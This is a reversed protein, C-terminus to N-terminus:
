TVLILLLLHINGTVFEFQCWDSGKSTMYSLQYLLGKLKKRILSILTCIMNKKYEKKEHM